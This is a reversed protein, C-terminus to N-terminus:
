SVLKERLRRMSEDMHAVDVFFLNVQVGDKSKFFIDAHGRMAANVPYLLWIESTNYKKSYAYMQYMDAQTIGYNKRANNMLSKWKADLIVTSGDDRKIVIDPRLAFRRPSDFLYYGKDQSSITWDKDELAKRLQQTVYSEFVKEMQFLLARSDAAGSFTTFSKDFLFVKSWKMLIDYAKTNRDIVVQSFDKEYNLSPSVMEFYSLLQKIEKQNRAVTTSGHLKLLTSKILRNEARDIHYEDYQVYFREQHVANKLIHRSTVLKGKFVNLNDQRSIYASKLGNKVLARVEQVYMNIFIEYLPMRDMNLNSDNFVRSPFDKMSRLMKLFVRKTERNGSDPNLGFDIKPLVEIQYGSHLQILGVYNNVSITDGVKRSHGMKLFDLADDHDETASFAIIFEQLDRFVPEPLYAFNTQYDSKCCIKDFERVELLNKM